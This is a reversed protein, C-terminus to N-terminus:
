KKLEQRREKAYHKPCLGKARAKNDCGDVHCSDFSIINYVTARTINASAAVQDVTAGKSIANAILKNRVNRASKAALMSLYLEQEVEEIEELLEHIDKV